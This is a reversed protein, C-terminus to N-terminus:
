AAHELLSEVDKALAANPNHMKNVYRELTFMGLKEIAGSPVYSTDFKALNILEKSLSSALAVTPISYIYYKVVLNGYQNHVANRIKADFKDVLANTVGLSLCFELLERKQTQTATLNTNASSIDYSRGIETLIASLREEVKEIFRQDLEFKGSAADPFLLRHIHRPSCVLEHNQADSYKIFEDLHKYYNQFVNQYNSVRIQEKTQESRHNAALLAVVPIILALISLPFRFISIFSNFGNASLNWQLPTNVCITVFALVAFFVHIAVVVWLVKLSLFSENPDFYRSLM